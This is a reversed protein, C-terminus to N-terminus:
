DDRAELEKLYHKIWATRDFFPEQEMSIRRSNISIFLWLVSCFIIWVACCKSILIWDIM